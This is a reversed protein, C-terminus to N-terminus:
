TGPTVKMRVDGYLTKVPLEAGLVAQSITLFLETHIDSGERKFYGHPKVKVHIIM